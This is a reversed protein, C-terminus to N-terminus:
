AEFARPYRRGFFPTARLPEVERRLLTLTRALAVTRHPSYIAGRRHNTQELTVRAGTRRRRSPAERAEPTECVGGLLPATGTEPAPGPSSLSEAPPVLAAARWGLWSATAGRTSCRLFRVRARVDAARVVRPSGPGPRRHRPQPRPPRSAAWAAAASESSRDRRPQRRPLPPAACGVGIGAARAVPVTCRRQNPGQPAGRQLLRRAAAGAGTGGLPTQRPQPRSPAGAPGPQPRPPGRRRPPVAPAM